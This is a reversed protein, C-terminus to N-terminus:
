KGWGAAATTAATTAAAAAEDAGTAGLGAGLGAEASGSGGGGDGGPAMWLRLEVFDTVNLRQYMGGNGDSRARWYNCVHLLQLCAPELPQSVGYLPAGEHM